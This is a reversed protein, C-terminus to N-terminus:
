LTKIIELNKINEKDKGINLIISLENDYIIIIIKKIQIKIKGIITNKNKFIWDSTTTELELIWEKSKALDVFRVLLPYIKKDKYIKIIEDYNNIELELKSKISLEMTSQINNIIEDIQHEIDYQYDRLVIHYNSLQKQIEKEMGYFCDRLVYNRQIISNLNTLHKTIDQIIWPFDLMNDLHNMLRRIIQIGLDLKHIDKSLYSIMIISYSENNHTFRHFDLEKMGQILSNFSVLIGWKIHHNIMDSEFKKVEDKNITTQYNKSELMIISNNPLHLWADGSHAIHGKKEFQIDGYRNSFIEELVCEGFEGKKNSNSSIGILKTLSTELSSIKTLIDSRNIEEKIENKSNDIREILESYEVQHKLEEQPPPPPHLIMYGKKLIMNIYKHQENKKLSKLLPYDELEITIKIKVM